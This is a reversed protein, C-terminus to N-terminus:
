CVECIVNKFVSLLPSLDTKDEGLQEDTLFLEFCPFTHIFSHQVFGLTLPWGTLNLM